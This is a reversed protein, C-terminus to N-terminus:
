DTQDWLSAITGAPPQQQLGCAHAAARSVTAAQV